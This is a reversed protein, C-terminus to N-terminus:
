RLLEKQYLGKVFGVGYTIHSLIVGIGGMLSIKLDKGRKAISYSGLLWFFVFLLTTPLIFYHPKYLSLSISGFLGITLTIPLFYIWRKSTQPYKKVFFGRHVGTNWIQKLHHKPFARRHHYVLVEHDYLIKGYKVLEICVRTDEGYYFTSNFGGVKRLVDTRIFLNYAPYDDVTIWKPVQYYRYLLKGSCFYSELIAGGLKEWYGDSPPTVGPGGVAVIMLHSFHRIAKTLWDPAPYADDDIFVSIEGKVKPLAFDRKEAPSTAHNARTVLYKIKKSKFPIKVQKDSVLIIEYKKYDLKLFRNFDKLFRNNNEPLLGWHFPIIISIFPNKPLPKLEKIKYNEM